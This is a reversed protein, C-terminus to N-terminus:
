RSSKIIKTIKVHTPQSVEIFYLGHMLADTKVREIHNSSGIEIEKMMAIRGRSDVIRLIAKGKDFNKVVLVFPGETPNPYVQISDAVTAVDNTIANGTNTPRTTITNVQTTTTMLLNPLMQTVKIRYCNLSATGAIRITYKKSAQLSNYTKYSGTSTSTIASPAILTTGLYLDYSQAISSLQDFVVYYKGITGSNSTFSFWDLDGTKGVRAQVSNDLAIGKAAAATENSEYSDTGDDTITATKAVTICGKADKLLVQYAAPILNSFTNSSQWSAGNNISFAYPTSGGSASITIAGNPTCSTNGKVSITFALAAPSVITATATSTCANADKVTVTYTGPLLGSFEGNVLSAGNSITYLFPGLGKTSSPRISGTSGNCAPNNVTLLLDVGTPAVLLYSVKASQGTADKVTLNYTGSSLGSLDKSTSQFTSNTKTWAYSFPAVGGSVQLTISGSTSCGPNVAQATITIGNNTITLERLSVNVLEASVANATSNVISTSLTQWGVANHVAAKLSAEALGNLESELYNLQASGTFNTVPTSFLYSRSINTALGSNTIFGNRFLSVNSFSWDSSPTLLLGDASLVTGAKVAMVTGDAVTFVQADAVTNVVTLAWVFLSAFFRKM